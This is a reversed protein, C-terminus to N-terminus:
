HTMTGANLMLTASRRPFRAGNGRGATGAEGAKIILKM